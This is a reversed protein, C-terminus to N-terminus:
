GGSATGARKQFALHNLFPLYSTPPRRLVTRMVPEALGALGVLMRRIPNKKQASSYLTRMYSKVELAAERCDAPHGLCDLIERYSSGIIGSRYFDEDGWDRFREERRMKAFVSQPAMWPIFWRGFTTHTEYPWARNPTETIILWGGPRLAEWFRPLYTRREEPLLHEMVAQLWIVDFMAPRLAPVVDEQRVDVVRSYGVGALIRRALEVNEPRLDTAVIDTAGRKALCYSSAGFGCGFDLIRLGEPRIRYM